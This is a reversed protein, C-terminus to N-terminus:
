SPLTYYTGTKEVMGELILKKLQTEMQEIRDDGLLVLLRKKTVSNRALEKLIAGRAQRGSGSFATQKTYSMSKTNVRIGSRKLYSGYDMLAAYWERSRGKPLSKSLVELIEADSVQKKDSFFHHLVVTRLNTEIFVVDANMSFAAVARATYPGVGPLSVLTDPDTPMKGKYEIVVKKAADHLMKARRNYGLGQWLTLVEALPAKALARVTPFRKLWAAYYGRVREVQTQQLMVESVLIRYPDTTNRWPLDHRGQKKYFDWIIKRFKRSDM